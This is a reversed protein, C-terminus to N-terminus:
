SRAFPLVVVFNVSGKGLEASISGGHKTAIAQALALGIGYGGTGRSRSSDARYFRDFLRATDDYSLNSCPNTVILEAKRATRRKSHHLSLRIPGTGEYHKIANDLLIGILRELEDTNGTIVIDDEVEREIHKGDAEELPTVAETASLALRSLDITSCTRQDLPEDSRALEIFNRIPEDVRKIQARTSETWQNPENIQEILDNNASIIAIPTKLEHSADTVFRRQREQNELFPKVARKSLPVLLLLAILACAGCVAISVALFSEFANIDSSRDLVVITLSDGEDFVAYRYSEYFGRSRARELINHAIAVMESEEVAAIHSSDCVTSDGNKSVAVTFFRTQFPTEATIRLGSTDASSPQPPQSPVEGSEHILDIMSDAQQSILSYNWLNITACIILLAISFAGAATIIFRLRLRSFQDSDRVISMADRGDLQPATSAADTRKRKLYM